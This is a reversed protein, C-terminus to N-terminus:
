EFSAALRKLRPQLPSNSATRAKVEAYVSKAEASNQRAVAVAYDLQIDGLKPDRVNQRNIEIWKKFTAPGRSQATQLSSELAPPLGELTTTTPAAQPPPPAEGAAVKSKKYEASLYNSVVYAGWLLLVIIIIRMM